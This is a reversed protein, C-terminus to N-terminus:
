QAPKDSVINECFRSKFHKTKIQNNYKVRLIFKLPGSKERKLRQETTSFNIFLIKYEGTKDTRHRKKNNMLITTSRNEKRRKKKYMKGVRYYICKTNYLEYVVIVATRLFFTQVGPTM